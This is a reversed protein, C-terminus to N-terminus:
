RHLSAAVGDPERTRGCRSGAAPRPARYVKARDTHVSGDAATWRVTAWGATTTAVAPRRTRAADDTLVATM